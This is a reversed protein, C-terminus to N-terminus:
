FGSLGKSRSIRPAPALVDHCRVTCARPAPILAVLKEILELPESTVHTTGDRWTAAWGNSGSGSRYVGDIVLCHLHV